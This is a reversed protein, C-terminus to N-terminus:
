CRGIHLGRSCALISVVSSKYGGRRRAPEVLLLLALIREHPKRKNWATLTPRFRRGLEQVHPRAMSKTYAHPRIGRDRRRPPEVDQQAKRYLSVGLQYGLSPVSFRSPTPSSALPPRLLFLPPTHPAPMGHKKRRRPRCNSSKAPPSGAPRAAARRLPTSSQYVLVPAICWSRAHPGYSAQKHYQGMGAIPWRCSM